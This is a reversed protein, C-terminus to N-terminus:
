FNGKLPFYSERIIGALNSRQRVFKCRDEFEVPTGADEVMKVGIERKGAPNISYEISIVLGNDYFVYSWRINNVVFDSVELAQYPLDLGQGSLIAKIRNIIEPNEDVAMTVFDVRYNNRFYRAEHARLGALREAFPSSEFGTLEVQKFNVKYAM